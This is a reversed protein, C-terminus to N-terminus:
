RRLHLHIAALCASYLARCLAASAPRAASAPVGPCLQCATWARLTHCSSLNARLCRVANGAGSACCLRQHSLSSARPGSTLGNSAPVPRLAPESRRTAPTEASSPAWAGTWAKCCQSSLTRRRCGPLPQNREWLFWCCGLHEVTSGWCCSYPLNCAPQSGAALFAPKTSSTM